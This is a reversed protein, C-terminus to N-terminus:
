SLCHSLAKVRRSGVHFNVARVVSQNIRCCRLGIRGIWVPVRRMLNLKASRDDLFLAPAIRDRYSLAATKNHATMPCCKKAPKHDAAAKATGSHSHHHHAHSHGAASSAARHKVKDLEIEFKTAFRELAKSQAARRRRLDTLVNCPNARGFWSIKRNLLGVGGNERVIRCLAPRSPCM